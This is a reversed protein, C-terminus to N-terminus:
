VYFVETSTSLIKEKGFGQLNIDANNKGKNILYKGFNNILSLQYSIDKLFPLDTVKYYVKGNTNLGNPEVYYIDSYSGNLLRLTEGEKIWEGKNWENNEILLPSPVNYHNPYIKGTEYTGNKYLFIAVSSKHDVYHIYVEEINSNYFENSVREANDHSIAKLFGLEMIVEEERGLLKLRSYLDDDEFGYGSMEEDYGKIAMFDQKRACFRGLADRIFYFRKQTDPILFINSNETFKENIYAAFGVGTYNDADVNCIIDGSALKFMVNRSHSRNFYQPVDTRFYKLIGSHLSEAMENNIWEELGDSSNYDFVLFEINGYSANDIINQPLTQKLHHLRNKCVTCFSIKNKM